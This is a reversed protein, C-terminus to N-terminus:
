PQERVHQAVQSLPPDSMRVMTVHRNMTRVVNETKAFPSDHAISPRSTSSGSTTPSRGQASSSGSRTPLYNRRYSTSCSGVGSPTQQWRVRSCRRTTSRSTATASARCVASSPPFLCESRRLDVCIPGGRYISPLSLSPRWAHPRPCVPRGSESCRSLGLRYCQKRRVADGSAFMVVFRLITATEEIQVAEM